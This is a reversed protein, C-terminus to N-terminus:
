DDCGTSWWSGISHLDRTYAPKCFSPQCSTRNFMLARCAKAAHAEMSQLSQPLPSAGTGLDHALKDAAERCIRELQDQIDDLDTCMGSSIGEVLRTFDFPLICATRIQQSNQLRSLQLKRVQLM